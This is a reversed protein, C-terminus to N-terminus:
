RKSSKGAEQTTESENSLDKQNLVEWSSSNGHYNICNLVVPRDNILIPNHDVNEPYDAQRKVYDAISMLPCDPVQITLNEPFLELHWEHDPHDREIAKLADRVLETVYFPKGAQNRQDIDIAMSFYAVKAHATKRHTLRFVHKDGVSAVQKTTYWRKPDTDARHQRAIKVEDLIRVNKPDFRHELESKNFIRTSGIMTHPIDLEVRGHTYLRYGTRTFIEASIAYNNFVYFQHPKLRKAITRMLELVAAEDNKPASEHIDMFYSDTMDELENFEWTVRSLKVWDTATNFSNYSHLYFKRFEIFYERENGHGGLFIGTGRFEYLEGQGRCYASILQEGARLRAAIREVGQNEGFHRNFFRVIKDFM